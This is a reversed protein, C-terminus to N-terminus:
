MQQSVEWGCEWAESSKQEFDVAAYIYGFRNALSALRNWFKFIVLYKYMLWRETLTYPYRM